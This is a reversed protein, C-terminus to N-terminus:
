ERARLSLSATGAQAIWEVEVGEPANEVVIVGSLVEGPAVADPDKGFTTRVIRFPLELGGKHVRLNEPPVRVAVSGKNALEFFVYLDSGTRSINFSYRFGPVGTRPGEPKPPADPAPAAPAPARSSEPAPVPASGRPVVSPSSYTAPVTPFAVVYRRPVSSKADVVVRFLATYGGAKVVLDMAGAMKKAKLYLTTVGEPRDAGPIKIDLASPQSTLVVDITDGFELVTYFRPSVYLLGPRTTLIRVDYTTVVPQAYGSQAVANGFVTAVTAALILAFKRPGNM